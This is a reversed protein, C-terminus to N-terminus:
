GALRVAAVVCRITTKGVASEHGGCIVGCDLRAHMWKAVKGPTDRVFV